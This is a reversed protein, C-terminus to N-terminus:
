SHEKPPQSSALFYEPELRIEIYNQGSYAVTQPVDYSLTPGTDASPAAPPSDPPVKTV